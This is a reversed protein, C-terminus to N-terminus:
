FFLVKMFIFLMAVAIMTTLIVELIRDNTSNRQAM